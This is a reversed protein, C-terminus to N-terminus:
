LILPKSTADALFIAAVDCIPALCPQKWCVLWIVDNGHPCLAGTGFTMMMVVLVTMMVVLIIMMVVLQDDDGGAHGLYEDVGAHWLYEDVGTYGLIWVLALPPVMITWYIPSMLVLVNYSTFTYVYIVLCFVISKRPNAFEWPYRRTYM